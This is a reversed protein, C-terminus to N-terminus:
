ITRLRKVGELDPRFQESQRKANWSDVGLLLWKIHDPNAM